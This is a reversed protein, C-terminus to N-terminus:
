VTVPYNRTIVSNVIFDQETCLLAFELADRMTHCEKRLITLDRNHQYLVVFNGETEQEIPIAFEEGLYDGYEDYIEGPCESYFMITKSFGISADFRSDPSKNHWKSIQGM